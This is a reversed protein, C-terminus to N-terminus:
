SDSSPLLLIPAIDELLRRVNIALAAEFVLAPLFVFM